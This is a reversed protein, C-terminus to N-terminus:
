VNAPMDLLPYAAKELDAIRIGKQKRLIHLLASRSRSNYQLEKASPRSVDEMLWGWGKKIPSSPNKELYLNLLPYQPTCCEEQRYADMVIACESHKWTIIGLQGGKALIKLSNRISNRLEDFEKNLHIRLAQFTLKAPHMAQYEKGKIQQIFDAFARTRKPVANAKRRLVITEAIRRAVTPDEGGYETLIRVLEKLEVTQLFQWAPTGSSLDFRLDLISDMEPRFGRDGDLQPSSIGIDLLIGAPKVGLERIVDGMGGFLGKHIKFRSDEEELKKGVEIAADDVDFAHLRGKSSLRKLIGRSHGGRGFTGDIYVADPDPLVMRAVVEEILAPTHTGVAQITGQPAGARTYGPTINLNRGMFYCGNWTLAEACAEEAVFTIWGMGKCKGSSPDRLLAPEGQIEGAESFFAKLAEETTEYPLFKLCIEHKSIVKDNDAARVQPKWPQAGRVSAVPAERSVARRQDSMGSASGQSANDPKSVCTPADVEIWRGGLEAKHLEAIKLAESQSQLTVACQGPRLEGPKLRSPKVNKKPMEVMESKISVKEEIFQSIQEATSTYPIGRIQVRWLDDAAPKTESKATKEQAKDSCDIQEKNKKTKKVVVDEAVRQKKNSHQDNVEHEHPVDSIKNKKGM